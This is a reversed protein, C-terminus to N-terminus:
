RAVFGVGYSKIIGYGIRKYINTKQTTVDHSSTCISTIYEGSISTDVLLGWM